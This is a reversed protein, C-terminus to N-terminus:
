KETYDIFCIDLDAYGSIGDLKGSASYQWMTFQYPYDPIDSYQALWADYESLRALDVQKILWEKKGYLLPHYGAEKVRDMFKKAIATKDKKTLGDIRSADNPIYEMDYAIPYTIEYGQLHDIVFNAEELAEEETIAQSFFYVGVMLGADTASKINREFFEDLVLQGTTYGRAGLRLMVFDVGAKKLKNFDVYEQYKSLDTGTYSVQKGDVYYKMIGSQNVLNTYVYNNQPLSPSIMVWEEDGDSDTVLTHKGDTAPDNVIVPESSEESSAEESSEEKSPYQDWFDLDEPTLKSGVLEKTDPYSSEITEESVVVATEQITESQKKEARNWLYVILLLGAVFLTVAVLSSWVMPAVSYKEEEGQPLKM